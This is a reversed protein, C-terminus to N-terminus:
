RSGRRKIVSYEWSVVLEVIVYVHDSRVAVAVLIM